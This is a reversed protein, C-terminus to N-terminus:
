PGFRELYIGPFFIDSILQNKIPVGVEYGWKYELWPYYAGVLLDGPFPVLGKLWVKNFFVALLVLFLGFVWWKGLATKVM